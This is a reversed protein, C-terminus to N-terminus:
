SNAPGQRLTIHHKESDDENIQLLFHPSNMGMSGISLHGLQNMQGFPGFSQGLTRDTVLSPYSTLNLSPTFHRPQTRSSLTSPIDETFSSYDLSTRPDIDPMPHLHMVMSAAAEVAAAAAAAAAAAEEVINRLTQTNEPYMPHSFVFPSDISNFSSPYPSFFSSQYCSRQPIPQCDDELSKKEKLLDIDHTRPDNIGKPPNQDIQRATRLTSLHPQPISDHKALHQHHLHQQLHQSHQSTHQQRQPIHHSLHNVYQGTLEQNRKAAVRSKKAEREKKVNEPNQRWKRKRERAKAKAEARKQEEEEETRPQKRRRPTGRNKALITANSKTFSSSFSSPSGSFATFDGSMM